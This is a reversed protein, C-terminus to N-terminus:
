LQLLMAHIACLICKQELSAILFDKLIHETKLTDNPLGGAWSESHPLNKWSLNKPHSMKLHQYLHWCFRPYDVGLEKSDIAM